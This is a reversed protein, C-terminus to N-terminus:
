ESASGMALLLSFMVLGEGLPGATSSCFCPGPLAALQTFRLGMEARCWRCLLCCAIPLEEPPVCLLGLQVPAQSGAGPLPFSLAQWAAGLPQLSPLNDHCVWPHQLEQKGKRNCVPM